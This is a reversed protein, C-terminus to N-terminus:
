PLVADYGARAMEADGMGTHLAFQETDIGIKAFLERSNWPPKLGLKGAILTEVDVLHYNNTLCWGHRRAWYSLMRVDFDIVNGVIIARDFLQAIKAAVMQPDAWERPLRKYFRGVGLAIPDAKELDPKIFWQYPRDLYSGLWPDRVIMGIDWPEHGMWEYLGTTELDLFITRRPSDDSM